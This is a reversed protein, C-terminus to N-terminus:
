IIFYNGLVYINLSNRYFLNCVIISIFIIVKEQGRLANRLERDRYIQKFWVIELGKSYLLIDKFFWCYYFDIIIM